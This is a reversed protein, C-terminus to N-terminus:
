GYKIFKKLRYFNEQYQIQSTNFYYERFSIEPVYDIETELTTEFIEFEKLDSKLRSFVSSSLGLEKRINFLSKGKQLESFVQMIRLPHVTKMGKDQKEKSTLLESAKSIIKNGKIINNGFNDKTLFDFNKDYNKRREEAKENYEKIKSELTEYTQLKQIQFHKVTYLFHDLCVQLFDDSFIGVDKESLITHKYFRKNIDYKGEFQNNDMQSSKCWRKLPENESLVLGINRNFFRDIMKYNSLQWRTLKPKKLDKSNNVSHVFKYNDKLSKFLSDDKRFIKNKYHYSFFDGRLSIEYRLVKDMEDKLFHIKFPQIKKLLKATENAKKRTREDSIAIFRGKLQSDFLSLVYDKNKLKERINEMYNENMTIDGYKEKLNIKRIYDDIFLKNFDQHKKLDGFQSSVYETGKHYIKFYAGSSTFYNLSTEYEKLKNNTKSEKGKALKMQHHLYNLAERKSKFYHNWCLDIRRMEIYHLNPKSDLSFMYELDTIFRNIFRMLRLYLVKRQSKISIPNNMKFYRESLPQPVFEALSHDYLYKPLSVTFDVFGGNENISFVVAAISSPSHFKGNVKMTMENVKTEDVFRMVNKIYTFGEKRKNNEFHLFDSEDILETSRVDQKVLDVRSFLRGKYKLMKTYLEHHQPVVFISKDINESQIQSLTDTKKALIGHFRLQITDIL